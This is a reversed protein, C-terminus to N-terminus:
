SWHLLNKFSFSFFLRDKLHMVLSKIRDIYRNKMNSSYIVKFLDNRLREIEKWDGKLVLDYLKQSLGEGIYECISRVFIGEDELLLKQYRKKDEGDGKDKVKGVYLVEKLLSNAVEIGGSAVWLGKYRKRTRITEKPCIIMCSKYMMPMWVDLPMVDSGNTLNFFHYGQRNDFRVCFWNTKDCFALLAKVFENMKGLEIQIDIDHSFSDPLGEYNRLICYAIEVEDLYQFFKKIFESSNM